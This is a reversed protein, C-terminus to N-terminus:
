VLERWTWADLSDEPTMAHLSGDPPAADLWTGALSRARSALAEDGLMLGAQLMVLSLWLSLDVSTEALGELREALQRVLPQMDTPCLGKEGPCATLFLHVALYFYVPRV